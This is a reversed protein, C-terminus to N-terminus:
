KQSLIPCHELKTLHYFHPIGSLGHEFPANKVNKKREKVIKEYRGM